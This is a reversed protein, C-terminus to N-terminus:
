EAYTWAKLIVRYDELAPEMDEDGNELLRLMRMFHGTATFAARRERSLAWAWIIFKYSEGNPRADSSSLMKQFIREAMSGRLHEHSHAWAEIVLNYSDLSAGVTTESVDQKRYSAEMRELLAQARQPIARTIRTRVKRGARSAAAWAALVANCRGAAGFDFDQYHRRRELDDSPDTGDMTSQTPLVRNAALSPLMQELLAHAQEAAECIEKLLERDPNDTDYSTLLNNQLRIWADFIEQAIERKEQDTAVAQELADQAPRPSKQELLSSHLLERVNEKWEVSSPSESSLFRLNGSLLLSPERRTPHSVL